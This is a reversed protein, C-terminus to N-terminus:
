RAATRLNERFMWNPMRVVAAGILGHGLGHAINAALTATVGL